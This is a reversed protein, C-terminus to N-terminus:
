CLLTCTVLGPPVQDPHGTELGSGLLVIPRNLNGLLRLSTQVGNLNDEATPQGNHADEVIRVLPGVADLALAQVTAKALETDRAKTTSPLM